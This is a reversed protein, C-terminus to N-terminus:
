RLSKRPIQSIICDPPILEAERGEETRMTMGGVVLPFSHAMDTAIEISDTLGMWQTKHVICAIEVCYKVGEKRCYIKPIDFICEKRKVKVM